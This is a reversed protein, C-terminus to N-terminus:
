YDDHRVEDYYWYNPFNPHGPIVKYKWYLWYKCSEPTYMNTSYNVMISYKSTGGPNVMPSFTRSTTTMCNPCIIPWIGYGKIKVPGMRVVGQSNNVVTFETITANSDPKQGEPALFYETDYETTELFFVNDPTNNYDAIQAAMIGYNSIVGAWDAVRVAAVSGSNQRGNSIVNSHATENVESEYSNEPVSLAYAMVIKARGIIKTVVAKDSKGTCGTTLCGNEPMHGDPDVLRLPNDYVYSFRDFAKPDGPEPVVIDPQTWRSLYADYWRANYYYIGLEVQNYQGTYQYKTAVGGARTEGWAKYMQPSGPQLVGNENVALSTSGLHDGMLYVLEGVGVRMAVRTAGSYYYKVSDTITGHWEFYSGIFVTLTIGQTATVRQGDGSYGFTETVAGTVGVMRNEADYGLNFAQGNVLRYTMNGNSDYSYTNGNSLATVAHKHASSGYTYGVGVKSVLNGTTSNYTYQKTAYDGLGGNGGTVGASILRNLADYTFSQTQPSGVISDNITNINGVTDIDYYSTM